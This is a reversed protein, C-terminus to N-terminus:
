VKSVICRLRKEIFAREQQHDKASVQRTSSPEQGCAIELIFGAVFVIMFASLQLRNMSNTGQTSDYEQIVPLGEGAM